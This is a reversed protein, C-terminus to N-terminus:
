WTEGGIGWKVINHKVPLGDQSSLIEDIRRLAGDPIKVGSAAANERIQGARSAGILACAVNAKRLAWALALQSMLIGCEGAIAKLEGVIRLFDERLYHNVSVAGMGGHLAGRSGEPCGAGAAYKGTLVGQALPSYVIQGIGCRECVPITEAEIYRDLMNYSPQNAAIPYLMLKDCIRMGETIQAATWNSVGIYLAKGQRVVHDMARLTEEMDANPDFWHCFYIDVYDTKLRALSLDIAELIHKRSLGRENPGPGTRGFVKTALVYSGRGYGALAEGLIIEARGQSYGDATDFLNIGCEYATRILEISEHKKSLDDCSIWSGFGIESVM